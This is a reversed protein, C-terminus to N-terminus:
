IKEFHHVLCSGKNVEAETLKKPSSAGNRIEGFRRRRRRRERGLLSLDVRIIITSTVDQGRARVRHHVERVDLCGRLEPVDLLDFAKAAKVCHRSRESVCPWAFRLLSESFKRLGNRFTQVGKKRQFPIESFSWSHKAPETRRNAFSAFQGRLLREWGARSGLVPLTSRTQRSLM